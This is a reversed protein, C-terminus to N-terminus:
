FMLLRYIVAISRAPTPSRVTHISSIVPICAISRFSFSRGNRGPLTLRRSALTYGDHFVPM